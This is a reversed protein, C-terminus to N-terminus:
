YRYQLRKSFCGEQDRRDSTPGITSQYRTKGRREHQWGIRTCFLRLAGGGAWQQVAQRTVGALLAIEALTATGTTSFKLALTRNFERNLKYSM